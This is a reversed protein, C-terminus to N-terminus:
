IKGLYLLHMRLRLERLRWGLTRLLSLLLLILWLFERLILLILLYSNTLGREDCQLSVDTLLLAALLFMLFSLSWCIYCLLLSRSQRRDLRVFRAVEHVHVMVIILGLLIASM